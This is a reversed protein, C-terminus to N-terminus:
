GGFGGRGGFSSRAAASSGFGSRSVTIARVPPATNGRAGTVPGTRNAAVDGSPKVYDGSRYDRYLPSSGGYRAGSGMGGLAYGLLFGTMPPIWHNGTEDRTRSCNGFQENCQAPDDFRPALKEHQAAANAYAARCEEATADATSTCQEVSSLVAGTPPGDDCGALMVPVSAAMLTLTLHRSRKM